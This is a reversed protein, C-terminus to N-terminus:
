KKLVSPRSRIKKPKTKKSHCTCLFLLFEDHTYAHNRSWPTTTNSFFQTQREIEEILERYEDLHREIPIQFDLHSSSILDTPILKLAQCFILIKTQIILLSM